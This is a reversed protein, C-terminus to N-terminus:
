KYRELQYDNENLPTNSLHIAINSMCLDLLLGFM